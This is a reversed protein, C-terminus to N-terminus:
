LSMLENELQYVRLDYLTELKEWIEKPTKLGSIHFLLDWSISLGLFRFAEYKKNLFRDKDIVHAPEEENDMTVRYLRRACLQIEMDGKWSHFNFPTLLDVSSAM